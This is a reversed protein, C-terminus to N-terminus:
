WGGSCMSAGGGRVPGSEASVLSGAAQVDEGELTDGRLPDPHPAVEQSGTEWQVEEAMRGKAAAPSMCM